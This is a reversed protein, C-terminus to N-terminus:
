QKQGLQVASKNRALSPPEPPAPRERGARTKRIIRPQPSKFQRPPEARGNEVRATLVPREGM